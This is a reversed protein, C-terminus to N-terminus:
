HRQNLATQKLISFGQQQTRQVTKQTQCAVSTCCFGVHVSFTGLFVTIYGRNVLDVKESTIKRNQTENSAELLVLPSYYILCYIM